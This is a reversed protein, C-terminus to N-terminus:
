RKRLLQQRLLREIVQDSTVDKFRIYEKLGALLKEDIHVTLFAKGAERLRARREKQREAPTKAAGTAPRGRGRGVARDNNSPDM